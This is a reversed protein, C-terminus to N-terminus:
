ETVATQPDLADVLAMVAEMPQPGLETHIDGRNWTTM